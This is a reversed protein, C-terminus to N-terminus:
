IGHAETPTPRRQAARHRIRESLFGPRWRLQERYLWTFTPDPELHADGRRIVHIGSEPDAACSLCVM